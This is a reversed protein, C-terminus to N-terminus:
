GMAGTGLTMLIIKLDIRDRFERLLEKKKSLSISGDIRCYQVGSLEFLDGVLDLTKRWFSFVISLIQNAYPRM